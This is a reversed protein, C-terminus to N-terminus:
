IDDFKVSPNVSRLQVLFDVLGRTRGGVRFTGHGDTFVKLSPSYRGMIRRFEVVADAPVTSTGRPAVFEVTSGVLRIESVMRTHQILGFVGMLMWLGGILALAGSSPLQTLGAVLAVAGVVMVTVAAIAQTRPGSPRVTVSAHNPM